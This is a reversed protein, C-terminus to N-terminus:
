NPMLIGIEGGALANYRRPHQNAPRKDEHIVVHLESSDLDYLYELAHKLNSVNNNVEHLMETLKLIINYRLTGPTLRLQVQTEQSDIFYMQLCKPQDDPSHISGIRHCVQWNVTCTPIWGPLKRQNCGFSTM